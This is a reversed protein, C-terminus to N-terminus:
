IRHDRDAPHAPRPIDAILARFRQEDGRARAAARGAEDIVANVQGVMEDLPRDGLQLTVQHHTGQQQRRRLQATVSGLGRRVRVVQWGLWLAVGVAIAALLTM